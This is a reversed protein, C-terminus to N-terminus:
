SNILFDHILLANHLELSDISKHFSKGTLQEIRQIRYKITNRHSFMAESTNQLNCDNQFYERLTELLQTHNEKDYQLVEGLIENQYEWLTEQNDFSMLLHYIGLQDYRIVEQTRKLREGLSICLSADQFSKQLQSIKDYSRGVGIYFGWEPHKELLYQRFSEYIASIQQKEEPFARLMGVINNSYYSVIISYGQTKFLNILSNSIELKDEKSLVALTNKKEKEYFHVVFIQQPPTIDYGIMESKLELTHVNINNGFIINALLDERDSDMNDYYAIAHGMEEFIDVLPVNWPLAIIPFSHINAYHLINKSIRDVYEDGVLLLAGSMHHAVAEEILSSLNFDEQQIVPTSIILLEHGHIWQSFNMSEAKYAWRIGNNMGEKGAIVRAKTMTPLSLLDKCQFM